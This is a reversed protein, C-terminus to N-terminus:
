GFSALGGTRVADLRQRLAALLGRLRALRSSAQSLRGALTAIEDGSREAGRRVDAGLEGIKRELRWREAELELARAYGETLTDELHELSPGPAADPRDLLVRLEHCFVSYDDAPQTEVRRNNAPPRGGM